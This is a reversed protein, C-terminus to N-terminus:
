RNCDINAKHSRFCEDSCMEDISASFRDIKAKPRAVIPYFTSYLPYKLALKHKESANLESEPFWSIKLDDANRRESDFHQLSKAKRVKRHEDDELKTFTLTFLRYKTLDNSNYFDFCKRFYKATQPESGCLQRRMNWERLKFRGCITDRDLPQYGAAFAQASSTGTLTQLNWDSYTRQLRAQNRALNYADELGPVRGKDNITLLDDGMRPPEVFTQLADKSM